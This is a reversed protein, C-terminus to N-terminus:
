FFHEIKKISQLELELLPWTNVTSLFFIEKVTRLICKTRSKGRNHQSHGGACLLLFEAWRVPGGLMFVFSSLMKFLKEFPVYQKYQM